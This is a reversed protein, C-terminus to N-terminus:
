ADVTMPIDDNPDLLPVDFKIAQSFKLGAGTNLLVVSETGGIWGSDLLQRLATVTAAGELCPFAGELSATLEQDRVLDADDVAVACGSTEYLARLVLFDGLAKPVTMGFAITSA